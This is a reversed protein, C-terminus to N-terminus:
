AVAMYDTFCFHSFEYDLLLCKLVYVKREGALLNSFQTCVYALIFFFLQVHDNAGMQTPMRLESVELLIPVEYCFKACAFQVISTM